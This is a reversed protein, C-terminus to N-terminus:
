SANTPNDSRSGQPVGQSVTLNSIGLKARHGWIYVNLVAMAALLVALVVYAAQVLKRGTSILNEFGELTGGTILLGIAIFFPIQSRM